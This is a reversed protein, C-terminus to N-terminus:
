VSTSAADTYCDDCLAMHWGLDTRILGKAGCRECTVCSRVEADIIASHVPCSAWYDDEFSPCEDVHDVGVYFRLGGFKEKVQHVDYSCDFRDLEAVLETLLPIWGDGVDLTRSVPHDAWPIADNLEERRQQQQQEM